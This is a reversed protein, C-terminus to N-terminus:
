AEEVEEELEKLLREHAKRYTKPKRGHKEIEEQLIAEHRQVISGASYLPEKHTDDEVILYEEDADLDDMVRYSDSFRAWADPQIEESSM